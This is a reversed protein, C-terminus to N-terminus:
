DTPSTRVIKKRETAEFKKEAEGLCYAAVTRLAEGNVPEGRKWSDAAIDELQEPKLVRGAQMDEGFRSILSEIREQPTRKKIPKVPFPNEDFELQYVRPGKTIRGQSDRAGGGSAQHWPVLSALGKELRWVYGKAEWGPYERRMAHMQTATYKQGPVPPNM